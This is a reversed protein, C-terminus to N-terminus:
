PEVAQRSAKGNLLRTVSQIVVCRVLGWTFCICLRHVIEGLRDRRSGFNGQVIRWGFHGRQQADVEAWGVMSVGLIHM